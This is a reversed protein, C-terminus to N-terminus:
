QRELRVMSSHLNTEIAKKEENSLDKQDLWVPIYIINANNCYYKTCGKRIQGYQFTFIKGISNFFGSIMKRIQGYQFTFISLHVIFFFIILRELRVMSSHLHYATLPVIKSRIDKQDLWVPIYIVNFAFLIVSKFIKRIQGYQFTFQIYCNATNYFYNDKQDLWVPIYILLGKVVAVKFYDKQDLWVPIYIYQIKKSHSEISKKRIQGYQFTFVCLAEILKFYLTRELRVM